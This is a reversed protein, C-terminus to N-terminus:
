RVSTEGVDDGAAPSYRTISDPRDGMEIISLDVYPRAFLNPADTAPRIGSGSFRVGGM